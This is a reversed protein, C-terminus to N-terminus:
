VPTMQIRGLTEMTLNLMETMLAPTVLQVASIQCLLQGPVFFQLVSHKHVYLTVMGVNVHNVHTMKLSSPYVM